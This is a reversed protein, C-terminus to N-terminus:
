FPLKKEEQPYTLNISKNLAACAAIAEIPNNFLAIQSKFGKNQLLIQFKNVAIADIEILYFM